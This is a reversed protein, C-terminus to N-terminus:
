FRGTHKRDRSRVTPDFSVGGVGGVEGSNVASASASAPCSSSTVEAKGLDAHSFPAGTKGALVAIAPSNPVAGRSDSILRGPRLALGNRSDSLWRQHSKGAAGPVLPRQHDGSWTMRTFDNINIM